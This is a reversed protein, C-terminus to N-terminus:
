VRSLTKSCKRYNSGAFTYSVSERRGETSKRKTPKQKVKHKSVRDQQKRERSKNESYKKNAQEYSQNRGM